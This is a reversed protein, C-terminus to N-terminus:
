MIKEVGDLSNVTGESMLFYKNLIESKAVNNEEYNIVPYYKVIETVDSSSQSILSALASIIM